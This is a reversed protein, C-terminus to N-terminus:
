NWLHTAYLLLIHTDEREPKKIHLQFIMKSFSQWIIETAAQSRARNNFRCMELIMIFVRVRHPFSPLKEGITPLKCYLVKVLTHM